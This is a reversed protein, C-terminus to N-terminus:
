APSHTSPVALSKNHYKLVLGVILGNIQYMLVIDSAKMLVPQHTQASRVGISVSKENQHGDLAM